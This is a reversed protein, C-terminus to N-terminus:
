RRGMRKGVQFGAWRVLEYSLMQPLRHAHGQRVFYGVEGALFRVSEAFSAGGAIQM